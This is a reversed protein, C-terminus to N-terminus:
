NIILKGKKVIRHEILKGKVDEFWVAILIRKIKRNKVVRIAAQLSKINKFSFLARTYAISNTRASSIYKKDRKRKYSPIDFGKIIDRVIFDPNLGGTSNGPHYFIQFVHDKRSKNTKTLRWKTDLFSM